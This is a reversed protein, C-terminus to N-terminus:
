GMTVSSKSKRTRGTPVAVSMPANSYEGLLQHEQCRQGALAADDIFANLQVAAVAPSKQTNLYWEQASASFVSDQIGRPTSAWRAAGNHIDSRAPIVVVGYQQVEHAVVFDVQELHLVFRAKDVDCVIQVEELLVDFHHKRVRVKRFAADIEHYRVADYIMNLRLYEQGLQATQAVHEM